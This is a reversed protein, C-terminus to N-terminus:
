AGRQTQRHTLTVRDGPRLQAALSVSAPTLVGAVPYGGTLPHDALFLVPLGSPPVQIAGRVVGESPLEGAVRRQVPDGTLRVGIRDLESGVTWETGDLSDVWDARPGDSFQLEVDSRPPPQPAWDAPPIWGPRASGVAVQAGATLPEPGLGALTDRSRSGLLPPVDVGGRVSLYTRLGATATGIELREGPALTEITAHSVAREGGEAVVRAPAPAGTLAFTLTATSEFAADGLTLELAAEGRGHGVLRAGLEYAELDVAGARGVGTAAHGPRGRDQILIPFRTQVVILERRSPTADLRRPVAVAPLTDVARFRVEAGPKLLAPEAALPDFLTVNTRGILQWGGPSAVPYVGSFEGALAVSGAPVRTRPSDRRPVVLREDGGVLYAFGPAFGGFAVRWSRGTHAAVVDVVALGTLRAVEALDEGDYVVPIEVRGASAPAQSGDWHLGAVAAQVRDRDGPLTTVLLTRAAPVVEVVGPVGAVQSYAALVEDIDALEVLFASEGNPLIRM